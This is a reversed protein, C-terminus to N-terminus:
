NRRLSSKAASFHNYFQTGLYHMAVRQAQDSKLGRPTVLLDLWLGDSLATYCVCVLEPDISTYNGEDKLEAFLKTLNTAIENIYDACISLYTPRSKTEGWFAFWVALKNRDTIKRSFDFSVHSTIKEETSLKENNFIKTLGSTYEKSIFRLTEILLKEKTEFHLNVIGMSLGAQQTVDAMTTGSLGKEAICKITAEILQKRRAQKPMSRPTDSSKTKVAEM